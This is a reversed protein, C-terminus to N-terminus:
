NRILQIQSNTTFINIKLNLNNHLKNKLNTLHTDLKNISISQDKPWIKNYLTTNNIGKDEALILNSLIINHINGLHLKKNETEVEHLVPRYSFSDLDIKIDKILDILGGFFSSINIPTKLNIKDNNSLKIQIYEHSQNIFVTAFSKENENLTFSINKQDLLAITKEKLFFNDFKLFIM